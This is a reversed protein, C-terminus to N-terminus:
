GEAAAELEAQPMFAIAAVPETDPVLDMGLDREVQSGEGDEGSLDFYVDCGRAQMGKAITDCRLCRRQEYFSGSERDLGKSFRHLQGKKIGAFCAECAHDKRARRLTWTLQRWDYDDHYADCM